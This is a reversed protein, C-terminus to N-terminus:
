QLIEKIFRQLLILLEGILTHNRKVINLRKKPYQIFKRLIGINENFKKETRNDLPLRFVNYFIEALSQLHRSSAHILLYKNLNKDKELLLNLFHRSRLLNKSMTLLYDSFFRMLM